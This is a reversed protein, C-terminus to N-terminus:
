RGARVLLSAVELAVICVDDPFINASAHQSAANVIHDIMKAPGATLVQKAAAEVRAIGFPEGQENPVEVIGDTFLLFIDEDDVNVARSPYTAEETLGLVPGTKSPDSLRTIEGHKRRLHLQPPHGANSFSARKVDLDLKLYFATAFIPTTMQRLIRNLGANVQTLFHDTDGAEDKLEEILTRLVATVLAAQMGHGAVDSVFVGVTHEDIPLVDFFDGGVALTPTYRHFFRIGAADPPQQPAFHPFSQPLFAQQLERAMRLDQELARRRGALEDELRKRELAAIVARTLEQVTMQDKRLYDHAGRKMAEVAVQENGMGTLMIVPLSRHAERIKALTDLGSMAPMHYDLLVLDFAEQTLMGLARKPDSEWTVRFSHEAGAKRLVSKVYDVDAQSDDIILTKIEDPM